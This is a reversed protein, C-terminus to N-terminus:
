NPFFNKLTNNCSVDFTLVKDMNEIQDLEVCTEKQEIIVFKYFVLLNKKM